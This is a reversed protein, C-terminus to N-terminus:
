PNPFHEQQRNLRLLLYAEEFPPLFLLALLAFLALISPLLVLATLYNAELIDASALFEVAFAAIVVSVVVFEALAKAEVMVAEAMQRLLHRLRLLLVAGVVIM